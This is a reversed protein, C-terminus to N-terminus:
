RRFGTDLAGRRAVGVVLEWRMGLEGVVGYPRNAIGIVRLGEFRGDRLLPVRVGGGGGDSAPGCVGVTKGAFAPIWLPAARPTETGRRM